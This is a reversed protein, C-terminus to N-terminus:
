VQVIASALSRVQRLDEENPRGTIDGMRGIENLMKFKGHYAGVFHWEALIDFGLHDFLQTLYKTTPVAENVGTHSGGFTCYAVAKKGTRKPAKPRIEGNIFDNKVYKKHSASLFEMMPKSPLWAYVGSGVFVFDYALLDVSEPDLDKTVRVTDVQHGQSEVSKEICEAVKQTNSTATAYINLIKMGSRRAQTKNITKRQRGSQRPQGFTGPM